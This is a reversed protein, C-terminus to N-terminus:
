GQAATLATQAADAEARLSEAEAQSGQGNAALYEAINARGDAANAAEALKDLEEQETM